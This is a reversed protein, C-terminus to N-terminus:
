VLTNVTAIRKQLVINAQNNCLKSRYKHKNAHRCKRQLILIKKSSNTMDKVIYIFSYAQRYPLTILGFHM